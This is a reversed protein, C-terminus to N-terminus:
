LNRESSDVERELSRNRLSPSIKRADLAWGLAAIGAAGAFCTGLYIIMNEFRGNGVEFGTSAGTTGTVNHPGAYLKAALPTSLINGIGRSLLLYGFLTTTLVPDDKAVPKVFGIYVSTWGSAVSGYAISFTLLGAFSHSLVGWLVFTAASTTLLTTLALIWPNFKDSLYGMLLRGVVAAANLMALTVASNSSSIHLDNAFTPLYVIPVFFALGHLTNVILFIWFPKHKMWEHPRPAGRPTPGHARARAHPLRGKVFPLLPSLILIIAIALIRLTKSSGYKSILRPLVLPLLVGGTATGAFLIGNALGRRAVFWESMNSICSLFLLSGGVGYLVGQLLVLHFIKTAYSSGLLSGFCLAAGFWMSKHRHQPYRAAIPNVVSGSCYIIGSSLTGILPLLSTASKQSIYRPDQLYSDLFVGYANPVGWAIAQVVFAAALFSWAGRGVDTPPLASENMGGSVENSDSTNDNLELRSATGSAVFGTSTSPPLPIRYALELEDTHPSIHAFM